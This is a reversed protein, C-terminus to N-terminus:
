HNVAFCAAGGILAAPEGLAAMKIVPVKKVTSALAKELKDSYLHWSNAINGGVILVEPQERRIFFDLFWILHNSFSDFAKRALEDTDYRDAIFKANPADQGSVERYARILGRTSVYDEIYEGKYPHMGLAPHVTVGNHSVATGLGTGLTIGIAHNFGKAAGFLLEGELFAEADNRFRIDSAPIHLRNALEERINMKYLAEYKAVGIILSIGNEYDFPGPMAFGLRARQVGAQNWLEKIASCWGNLIENAPAHCDVHKRIVKNDIIEGSSLDIFGATIHSGGIDIGLIQQDSMMKNM